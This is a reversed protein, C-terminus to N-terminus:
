YRLLAAVGQSQSLAEAAPGRVPTVRAGTRLAQDIMAPGLGGPESEEEWTPRAGEDPGFGRESDLLLHAVRAEALAQMTEQLGASANGGARAAEMARRVQELERSRNIEDLMGDLRAAIRENEESVIDQEGGHRVVHGPGVGETVKRVQDPDGFAVIAGVRGRPIEGAIRQGVDHLFRDRNAELRQALQDKGAAKPFQATAPDRSVRAKRERWMGKRFDAEWSSLESIRGLEWRWLRVREASVAIALLPAGDELLEVMSTLDPRARHVVRLGRPRLQYSHWREDGGDRAVEVFGIQCRGSPRRSEVPFRALIREATPKMALRLERREDNAAEVLRRLGDRLRMRWGGGRDAPDIEFCVSIVGLPPSWELLEGLRDADMVGREV